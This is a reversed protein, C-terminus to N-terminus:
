TRIHSCCRFRARTGAPLVLHNPQLAWLAIGPQTGVSKGGAIKSLLQCRVDM